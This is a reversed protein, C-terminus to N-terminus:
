QMCFILTAQLKSKLVSHYLWELIFSSSIHSINNYTNQQQQKEDFKVRQLLFTFLNLFNGCKLTCKEELSLTM